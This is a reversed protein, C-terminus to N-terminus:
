HASSQSFLNIVAVGAIILAMGALAAADLKQGYLLWAILSVLVIGIGSWLAYAIGVPIERLTQSLLYFALLYGGATLLSPWLRTFGDSAKLASTAVVESLIAGMLFLWVKM